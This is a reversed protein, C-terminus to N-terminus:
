CGNRKEKHQKKVEYMRRDALQILSDLPQREEEKQRVVGISLSLSFPSNEKRNYEAAADRIASDMLTGRDPCIVVFEDGGYRMLFTDGNEDFVNKLIEAVACIASDGTRHGLRDNIQKMNDMDIFLVQATEGQDTILGYLERGREEYGFRNYLGTLSDRVYLGGLKRNLDSLLYKKRVNEVATEIFTFTPEILNIGAARSIGDFVIYGFCYEKYHLPYFVALRTSIVAPDPLLETRPFRCYVHLDEGTLEPLISVKGESASDEDAKWEPDEYIGVLAAEEDMLIQHANEGHNETERSAVCLYVHPCGFMGANKEFQEYIGTFTEADFMEATMESQQAYYNKMLRNMDFFQRKTETDEGPLVASCGCSESFVPESPSFIERCVNKGEMCAHLELLGRCTIEDFRRAVTTLRPTYAAATEIDDFGTVIIDEPIRLGAHIFTECAGLAMDDNACVLAEPLPGDERLIKEAAEAGQSYEWSGKYYQLSSEPIGAERCVDAFARQREEAEPSGPYGSVYALRTLGHRGTLHEVIQRMAAYNDTGAYLCGDIRHNLSLIPIGAEQGRQVLSRRIEEPLIQNSQMVMGDFATLDPLQFIEFEGRDNNTQGYRGFCDFVCVQTDECQQLFNRIGLLSSYGIEYNWDTTFFAIRYGMIGQLDGITGQSIFENYM